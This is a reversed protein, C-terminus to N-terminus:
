RYREGCLALAGELDSRRLLEWVEQDGLIEKRRQKFRAQLDAMLAYEIGIQAELKERLMRALAPSKGGTAVAVTVSGMRLIAPVIFDREGEDVRGVLTGNKRCRDVIEDNFEPDDTAAMVLHAGDILSEIESTKVRKEVVKIGEKGKNGETVLTTDAYFEDFLHARRLGVEGGGFIVVKRHGLDLLLPMFGM